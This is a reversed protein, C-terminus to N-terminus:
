APSAEVNRARWGWVGAREPRGWVDIALIVGLLAWVYRFHLLEHTLSGFLIVILGGVLYAPRPVVEAFPRRLPGVISASVLVLALILLINGFGGVVGREVFSALLDNHASKPDPDGRAALTPKTTAAGLGIVGGRFYLDQLRGVISARGQSSRDARGLSNKIVRIQSRQAAATVDLQVYAFVSGVIVTGVVGSAVVAGVVGSRGRRVRLIAVVALAVLVGMIASNSATLGMATVLMAGGLVRAARRRPYRTSLMVMLSLAYYLGAQNPSAFTLEARGGEVVQGSLASIGGAVAVIMVGAWLVSSWVWARIAAELLEPTRCVNVIALFWAFLMLDQAVAVLALKPFASLMGALAGAGVMLGVPVSLPFRIVHMRDALWLFAAGVSIGLAVDAPTIFAALRPIVLPMLVLSAAVAKTVLRDGPSVEPRPASPSSPSLVADRM